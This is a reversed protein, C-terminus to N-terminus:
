SGTSKYKKVSFKWFIFCPIIFLTGILPTLMYIVNTERGILYLFPYYQFLALPIVFTLFKLVGEGYISFPYMGFERGGDTVINMFEMGGIIFISLAAYLIFLSTFVIFGCVIMLVLTIIKDPTWIVGCTPIAYAFIIIAQIVRGLRSFEFLFGFLMTMESRPYILIRDFEGRRVLDPFLDFGRAFFEALAFSIMITGFCLLVENFSYGDVENFREFLFYITFFAAFSLLFQGIVTMFFSAKYEMRCRLSMSLQKLYLMKVGM